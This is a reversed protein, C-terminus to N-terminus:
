DERCKPICIDSVNMTSPLIVSARDERPREIKKKHQM